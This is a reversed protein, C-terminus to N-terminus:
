IRKSFVITKEFFFNFLVSVIAGGATAFLYAYKFDIIINQIIIYVTTYIGWGILRGIIDIGLQKKVRKNEDEFTWRKNIKFQLFIAVFFSLSNVTWLVNSNSTFISAFFTIGSVFLFSLAGIICFKFLKLFFDSKLFFIGDRRLKRIALNMLGLGHKKVDTFLRKVDTKKRRNETWKVPIEKIRFDDRLLVLCETDLFWSDSECYQIIEKVIGESFLRFGCQHDNFPSNYFIRLISNYTKSVQERLMPRDLDSGKSYRSGIAGDYGEEFVACMLRKFHKLPVAMDSDIFAYYDGKIKSWGKKLALGRGLKEKYSSTEICDYKEKLRFMIEETRDTSGDQCILIKYDIPCERNLFDITEEVTGELTKEENHVPITFVMLKKEM